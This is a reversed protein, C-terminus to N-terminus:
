EKQQLTLHSQERLKGESRENYIQLFAVSKYVNTKYVVVKGFENSLESLMKLIKRYLIMYDALPSLKVEKGTQILKIEKEEIIAKTLVGLVIGFLLLM